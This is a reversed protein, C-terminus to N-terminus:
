VDKAGCEPMYVIIGARACFCVCVCEGMINNNYVIDGRQLTITGVIKVKEMIYIYEDESSGRM